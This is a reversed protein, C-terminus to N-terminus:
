PKFQDVKELFIISLILRFYLSKPQKFFTNYCLWNSLLLTQVM